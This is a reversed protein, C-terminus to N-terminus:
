SADEAPLDGNDPEFMARYDGRRWLDVHPAVAKVRGADLWVVLDSRAATSARHAVILRTQNALAGTLVQSVHYETVTDLSAAVDDLVLVRGAHAFARALGVRQAEGGSLPTETLPTDYGRPLRRIFEDARAAEAAAVIECESPTSVGLAIAEALTEGALVPREFGYSVQRRLESHDLQRLSVGDLLIDGEDPDVLRGALAGLLSKGSGSRGVIAVLAGAPVSLDVHDLTVRGNMRATVDRFELRGSGPPLTATGYHTTSESLVEHARGAGGRARTLASVAPLVVGLGTALTAYQAAALMGGPTIRGRALEAGAVALVGIELLPVLLAQQATMRGVVRWTSAGHRHLESLPAIVREAERRLTGAAAITRAGSLADMLRAAISGQVAFYRDALDSADRLFARLFFVLLPLGVLVTLCLWPDIVGLAVIGGVAPIAEVVAHVMDPGVRGAESANGVIRGAVDGSTFREGGRVGLGLVQTLMTRRLWATSRARAAGAAIDDLAHCAVLLAILLGFWLAWTRSAGGGVISDLTKGLVAPMATLAAAFALGTVALVAMSPGGHWAARLLLRDARGRGTNPAAIDSM